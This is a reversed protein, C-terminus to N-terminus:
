EAETTTSFIKLYGWGIKLIKTIIEGKFLIQGKLALYVKPWFIGQWLFEGFHWIITNSFTCIKIFTMMKIIIKIYATINEVFFQKDYRHRRWKSTCNRRVTRGSHRLQLHGVHYFFLIQITNLIQFILTNNITIFYIFPFFLKESINLFCQFNFNM